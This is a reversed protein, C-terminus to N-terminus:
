LYEGGSSKRVSVTTVNLKNTHVLIYQTSRTVVISINVHGNFRSMVLDALVTVDYHRPTIYSPLRVNWWIETGPTTVGPFPTPDRSEPNSTGLFISLM